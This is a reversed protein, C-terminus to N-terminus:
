AHRNRREIERIWRQLDSKDGSELNSLVWAVVVAGVICVAGVAVALGFCLLDGDSM